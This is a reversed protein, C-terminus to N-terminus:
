INFSDAQTKELMDEGDALLIGIHEGIYLSHEGIRVAGIFYPLDGKASNWKLGPGMIEWEKLSISRCMHAYKEYSSSTIPPTYYAGQLFYGEYFFVPNEPKPSYTSSKLQTNEYSSGDSTHLMYYGGSPQYLLGIRNNGKLMRKKTSSTVGSTISSVLKLTKISSGAYICPAYYSSSSKAYAATAILIYDKGNGRIGHFQLSEVATIDIHIEASTIETTEAGWTILDTSSLVLGKTGAGGVIFYMGNIYDIDSFTYDGLKRVTWTQGETSYAISGNESIAVFRGGEYIVKIFDDSSELATPKFLVAPKTGDSSAERYVIAKPLNTKIRM